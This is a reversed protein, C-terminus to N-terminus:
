KFCAFVKEDLPQLFHSTNAPLLWCMVNNELAAIITEVCKHSALQDGFLWCMEDPHLEKWIKGFQEITASHLKKNTYGTKTFAYFHPWSGKCSQNNTQFQIETELLGGSDADKSEKAKFIWTLM